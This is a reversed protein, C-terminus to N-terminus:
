TKGGKEMKGESPGPEPSLPFSKKLLVMLISLIWLTLLTGGMGVILLTVGFTLNDM